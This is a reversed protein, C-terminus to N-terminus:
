QQRMVGDLCDLVELSRDFAVLGQRALIRAGTSVAPLERRPDRRQMLNLLRRAEWRPHRKRLAM